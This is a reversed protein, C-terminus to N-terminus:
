SRIGASERSSGSVAEILGAVGTWFLDGLAEATAPGAAASNLGRLEEEIRRLSRYRLAGLFRGAEDVVPLSHVERWGPHNLIRHLDSDARLSQVDSNMVSNLPADPRALLLERLNLVGVLLRGRDLVYLNYIVREPARRLRSLATDCRLDQPLAMVDPDMRSGATADPYRLLLRIPRQVEDDLAHLLSERRDSPIRRLLAAALDAGLGRLPRAARDPGLAMVIESAAFPSIHELIGAVNEPAAGALLSASAKPELDELVAAAEAPHAQVLAEALTSVIEM